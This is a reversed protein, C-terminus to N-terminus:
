VKNNCVHEVTTATATPKARFHHAARGSAVRSRMWTRRTGAVSFKKNSARDWRQKATDTKHTAPNRLLQPNRV